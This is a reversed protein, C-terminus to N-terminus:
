NGGSFDVTQSWQYVNDIYCQIEAQGSGSVSISLPFDSLAHKSDYAVEVSSGNIIKLVKM